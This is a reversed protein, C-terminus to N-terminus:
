YDYPIRRLVDLSQNIAWLPANEPAGGYPRKYQQKGKPTILAVFVDQRDDVPHIAVGLGVQAHHARRYAEILDILENDPPADTLVQGGLFSNHVTSLRRILKGDLGAEIIILKWHHLQIAALAKSELTEEDIGYIFEALRDRLSAEIPAILNLAEAESSAKATIRIDVQGSHATLGVTPNNLRELDGISNDIQSEGIGVTHIVRSKIMGSLKFHDQLFPIIDHEMLYRMEAPVGPLSIIIKSQHELIFIPATGVPNEIARAGMPIYAQRTNNETPERGYRQFRAKIQEWLEPHYETPAGVALAIAERTPDDITPGLGGTTIVFDCRDMSEQVARAIRNVNDGVTTRRFLDIGVDRLSRAIYSANTDDIDGLLLETGITIIEASPM